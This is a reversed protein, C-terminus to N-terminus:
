SLVPVETLYDDGTVQRPASQSRQFAYILSQLNDSYQKRISYLNKGIETPSAQRVTNGDSTAEIIPSITYSAINTRIHSDINKLLYMAKLVAAAEISIESVSDDSNLVEIEKSTENIYYSINIASNLQGVNGRLWYAISAISISTPSDLEMWIETAIDTVRM